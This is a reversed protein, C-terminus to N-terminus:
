ANVEAGGRIVAGGTVVATVLFSVVGSGYDSADYECDVQREVRGQLGKWDRGEHAALYM